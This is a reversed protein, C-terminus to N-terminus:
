LSSSIKGDEGGVWSLIAGVSVPVFGIFRLVKPVLFFGKGVVICRCSGVM